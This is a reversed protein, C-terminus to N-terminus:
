VTELLMQFRRTLSVAENLGLDSINRAIGVSRDADVLNTYTADPPIRIHTASRSLSDIPHHLREVREMRPLTSVKEAERERTKMAGAM